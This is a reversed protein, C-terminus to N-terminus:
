SPGQTTEKLIEAHFKETLNLLWISEKLGTFASISNLNANFMLWDILTMGEAINM